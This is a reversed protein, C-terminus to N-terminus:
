NLHNDIVDIVIGQYYHKLIESYGAGKKAMANAGEQSMGVGHGFGHTRLTIADDSLLIDFNASDLKFLSRIAIGSVDIKGVKCKEVRGSKFRSVIKFETKLNNETIKSEPYKGRLKQAFEKISFTKEDEFRSGDEEGPSEVSRCYPLQESFVNESDETVGGSTSHFFAEIPQSDYVIIQGRTSDVAERIKTEYEDFKKGWDNKSKDLSIFAQCSASSTCVDAGPHAACGGGGYRIMKRFAYTRAAVAQAKLAELEFSVPEEAPVVCSIYDEMNMAIIKQASTDYVNITVDAISQPIDKSDGTVGTLTVNKTNRPSAGEEAMTSFIFTFIILLSLIGVFILKNPAQVYKKISINRYSKSAHKGRYRRKIRQM